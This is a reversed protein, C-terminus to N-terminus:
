LILLLRRPNLVPSIERTLLVKSHKGELTVTRHKGESALGPEELEPRGVM